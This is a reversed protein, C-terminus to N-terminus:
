LVLVLYALFLGGFIIVTTLFVNLIIGTTITKAGLPNRGLAEIGTKVFRGYYWFGLTFSIASLLVALLYRLSTLPTLFPSQSALKVTKLLNIGKGSGVVMNYQPKLNILILGTQRPDANNYGELATGIVFGNEDAKIAVGSVDSTTIWDSEKIAGGSSSVRVYVKGLSIVPYSSAVTSTEFSVAPNKSVVGYFNQDYPSNSLYYGEPKISVLDGDSVKEDLIIISTAIGSSIKEQAFICGCNFIFLVFIFVTIRLATKM